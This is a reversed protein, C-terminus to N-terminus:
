REPRRWTRNPSRNPFGVHRKEVGNRFGIPLDLLVRPCGQDDGLVTPLALPFVSPGRKQVMGSVLRSIWCYEPVARFASIALSQSQAIKTCTQSTWRLGRKPIPLVPDGRNTGIEGNEESKLDERDKKEKVKKFFWPLARSFM